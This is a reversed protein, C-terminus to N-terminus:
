KPDLAGGGDSAKLNGVEELLERIWLGEQSGWHEWVFCFRQKRAGEVLQM